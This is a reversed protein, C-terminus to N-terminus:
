ALTRAASADIVLYNLLTPPVLTTERQRNSMSQQEGSVAAMPNKTRGARASM